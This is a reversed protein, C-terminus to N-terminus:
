GTMPKVINAHGSTQRSRSNVMTKRTVEIAVVDGVYKLQASNKSRTTAFTLM